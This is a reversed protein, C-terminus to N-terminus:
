ESVGGSVGELFISVFGRLMREDEESDPTRGALLDATLFYSLIMGFLSRAAIHPDTRRIRGADMLARMLGSALEMGREVGSESLAGKLKPMRWADGLSMMFFDRNERLISLVAQANRMLLEEVPRDMDFSETRGIEIVPSRESITAAFLARKTGFLRFLTVENVRAKKAIDKTATAAFGKQAFLQLSADLIRERASPGAPKRAKGGAM